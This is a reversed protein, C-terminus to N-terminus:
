GIFDYTPKMCKPSVGYCGLLTEKFCSFKAHLVTYWCGVHETLILCDSRILIAQSVLYSM